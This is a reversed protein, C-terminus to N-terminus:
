RRAYVHHVGVKAGLTTQITKVTFGQSELLQRARGLRQDVDHLEMSIQRIRPWHEPRVGQLVDLEAREVDVKLLDIRGVGQETIVESLTRFGCQVPVGRFLREVLREVIPRRLSLPLLGLVKHYQGGREILERKVVSRELDKERPRLTSNGPTWSFYTVEASGSFNSLGHNFLRVESGSRIARGLNSELVEYICPVPEFAFLRVCPCSQIAFLSFLGINAGVDFVCAGDTLEIGHRLYVQEQFIEDYIYRTEGIPSIHRVRLGNPLRTHPM